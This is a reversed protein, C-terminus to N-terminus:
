QCMLHRELWTGERLLMGSPWLVMAKPALLEISVNLLSCLDCDQKIDDSPLEPLEWNLLKEREEVIVDLNNHLDM